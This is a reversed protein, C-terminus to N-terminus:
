SRRTTEDSVDWSCVFVSDISMSARSKRRRRLLPIFIWGACLVAPCHCSSIATPLRSRVAPSGPVTGGSPLTRGASTEAPPCSSWMPDARAVDRTRSTASACPHGGEGMGTSRPVRVDMHLPSFAFLNYSYDSGRGVRVEGVFISSVAGIGSSGIATTVVDPRACYGLGAIM